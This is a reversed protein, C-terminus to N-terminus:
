LCEICSLYVFYVIYTCQRFIYLKNIRAKSVNLFALRQRTDKDQKGDLAFM